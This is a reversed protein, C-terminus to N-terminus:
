GNVGSAFSMFFDCVRQRVIAFREAYSVLNAIVQAVQAAAPLCVVDGTQSRTQQEGNGILFGLVSVPSQQFRDPTTRELCSHLGFLDFGNVKLKFGVLPRPLQIFSVLLFRNTGQAIDFTRVQLAQQPADDALNEVVGFDFAPALLELLYVRGPARDLSSRHGTLRLRNQGSGGSAWSRREPTIEGSGPRISLGVSPPRNAREWGIPY